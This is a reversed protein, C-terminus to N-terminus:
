LLLEDVNALLIRRQLRQVVDDRGLHAAPRAQKLNPYSAAAFGAPRRGPGGEPERGPPPRALTKPDRLRAALAPQQSYFGRCAQKQKWRRRRVAKELPVAGPGLRGLLKHELKDLADASNTQAACREGEAVKRRQSRWAAGASQPERGPDANVQLLAAHRLLPQDLVAYRALLHVHRRELFDDLV